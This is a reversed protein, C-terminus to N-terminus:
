IEQFFFQTTTTTGDHIETKLEYFNNPLVQYTAANADELLLNKSAALNHFVFESFGPVIYNEGGLINSNKKGISNKWLYLFNDIINSYNFNTVNGDSFAISTLNDGTYQFTNVQEPVGDFDSDRGASIINDNGDLQLVCQLTAVANPDDYAYEGIREYYIVTDSYHIFRFNLGVLNDDSFLKAGILNANGDYYLNTTLEINGVTKKYHNLTGDTNYFYKQETTQTQLTGNHFFEYTESFLKNNVLNGTYLTQYEPTTSTEIKYGTMIVDTASNVSDSTCSLCIVVIFLVALKKM